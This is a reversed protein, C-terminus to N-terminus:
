KATHGGFTFAYVKIGQPVILVLDHRELKGKFDLLKYLRNQNVLVEGNGSLDTTYYESKLPKGDVILQIPDSSTGGLLAYVHDAQFNIKLESQSSQSLIYQEYAEWKGRLVLRNFGMAEFFDHYSYTLNPILQPLQMLSDKRAYGLYIDPTIDV